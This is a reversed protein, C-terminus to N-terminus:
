KEALKAQEEILRSATKQLSPILGMAEIVVQRKVTAQWETSLCHVRSLQRDTSVELAILHEKRSIM